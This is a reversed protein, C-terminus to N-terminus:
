VGSQCPPKNCCWILNGEDDVGNSHLYDCPDRDVGTPCVVSCPELSCGVTAVHHICGDTKKHQEITITRM